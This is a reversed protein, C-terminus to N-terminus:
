PLEPELPRVVTTWERSRRALEESLVDEHHSADIASVMWSGLTFAVTGATALRLNLERDIDGATAANRMAVTGLVTAAVGLAQTSTFIVGPRPRHQAYQPVGLPLVLAFGPASEALAPASMLLPLLLSM